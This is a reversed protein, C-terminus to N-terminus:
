LLKWMTEKGSTYFLSFYSYKPKNSNLFFFEARLYKLTCHICWCWCTSRWWGRQTYSFLKKYSNMDDNQTETIGQSRSSNRTGWLVIFNYSSSHSNPTQWSLMAGFTRIFRIDHPAGFMMTVEGDGASLVIREFSLDQLCWIHAIKHDSCTRGPSIRYTIIWNFAQSIPMLPVQDFIHCWPNMKRMIMWNLIM